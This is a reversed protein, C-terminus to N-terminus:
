FPSNLKGNSTSPQFTGLQLYTRDTQSTKNHQIEPDLVLTINNSQIRSFFDSGLSDKDGSSPIIEASM